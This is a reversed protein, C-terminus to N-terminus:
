PFPCVYVCDSGCSELVCPGVTPACPCPPPTPKGKALIDTPVVLAVVGVVFAIVMVVAVLKRM